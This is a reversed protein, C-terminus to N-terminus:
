ESGLASRLAQATEEPMAFSHEPGPFVGSRVEDVYSAFAAEITPGLDAYRKAFSLFLKSEIGLLDTSVLTQGDGVGTGVGDDDLGDRGLQAPDDGFGDGYRRDADSGTGVAVALGEDRGIKEADFALEEEGEG